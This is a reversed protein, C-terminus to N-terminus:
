EALMHLLEHGARLGLAKPDHLSGELAVRCMREEDSTAAMALMAMGHDTLSAFAGVPSTCDAGLTRVCEREATVCARTEACDITGVVHALPHDSRMQVALAGQGADSLCVSPDLYETIQETLGLRVLGAAALVVADCQGSRLKRLRTDVNGRISVIQLDPRVDRLQVRRRSSSTALVSESPLRCLGHGDRAILVDRADERPPFAVCSLSDDAGDTPMDKLSHVAVDIEGEALAREIPRVWVGKDGFTSVPRDQIQDGRTNLEVVEFNVEPMIPRLSAIVIETQRMALPSGRTGVRVRRQMMGAM